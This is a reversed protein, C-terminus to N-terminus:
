GHYLLAEPVMWHEMQEIGGANLSERLILEVHNTQSYSYIADAGKRVNM